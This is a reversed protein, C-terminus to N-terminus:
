VRPYPAGAGGRPRFTTPGSDAAGAPSASGTAAGCPAAEERRMVSVAGKVELSAEAVASWEEPWLGRLRVLSSTTFNGVTRKELLRIVVLMVAYVTVARLATMLLTAPDDM